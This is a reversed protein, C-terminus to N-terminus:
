VFNPQYTVREDINDGFTRANSLILYLFIKGVFHLQQTGFIESSEEAAYYYQCM